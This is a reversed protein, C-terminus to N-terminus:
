HIKLCANRVKSWAGHATQDPSIQLGIGWSVDKTTLYTKGRDGAKPLSLISSSIMPTFALWERGSVGEAKVVPLVM